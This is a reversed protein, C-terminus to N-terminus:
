LSSRIAYPMATFTPVPWGVTVEVIDDNLFARGTRLTYM